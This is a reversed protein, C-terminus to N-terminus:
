AIKKLTMGIRKLLDSQSFPKALINNAGADIAEKIRGASAGAVTLMLPTTRNIELGPGRLAHTFAVGDLPETDMDAIVLDVSIGKLHSLADTSKVFATVEGAGSQKLLKYILTKNAIDNQVLVIKLESFRDSM